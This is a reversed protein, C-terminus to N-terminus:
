RSIWKQFTMSLKTNYQDITSINDYLWPKRSCTFTESDIEIIGENTCKKRVLAVWNLFSATRTRVKLNIIKELIYDQPHFLFSTSEINYSILNIINHWQPMLHRVNILGLVIRILNFNHIPLLDHLAITNRKIHYSFTGRKNDVWGNRVTDNTSRSTLWKRVFLNLHTEIWQEGCYPPCFLGVREVDSYELLREIIFVESLRCKLILRYTHGNGHPLLWLKLHFPCQCGDSGGGGTAERGVAFPVYGRDLQDHSLFKYFLIVM